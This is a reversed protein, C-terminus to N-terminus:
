KQNDAGTVQASTLGFRRERNQFSYIAKCLEEKDFDPWYVDTFYLESYSAQWMLFNSLRIEGGTRIILDPDPMFSANLKSAFKEEDIDDPNLIGNRVDEALLRAARAIEWRSSYSLAIVVEARTNNETTKMCKKIRNRVILPIRNLDGIMRLRTNNDMFIKEELNSLVLNMLVKVEKPPRKWNETSFAYLTIYRVGLNVADEVISWARKTGRSHGEARELGHEKAWRGNGDMIIAIHTPIRNRDIKDEYSM